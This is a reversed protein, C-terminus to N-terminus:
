LRSLWTDVVAEAGYWPVEGREEYSGIKSMSHFVGELVVQEAGELLAWELPVVCDGVVDGVGCM